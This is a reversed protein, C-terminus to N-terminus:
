AQMPSAVDKNNLYELIDDYKLDKNVNASAAM